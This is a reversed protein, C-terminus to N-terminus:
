EPEPQEPLNEQWGTKIYVILEDYGDILLVEGKITQYASKLATKYQEWEAKLPNSSDFEGFYDNIWGNATQILGKGMTKIFVDFKKKRNSITLIPTINEWDRVVETETETEIPTATYNEKDYGQQRIPKIGLIIATGNTFIDKRYPTGDPARVEVPFKIERHPRWTGALRQHWGEPLKWM